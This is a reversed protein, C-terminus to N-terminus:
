LLSFIFGRSSCHSKLANINFLDKEAIVYCVMYKERELKIIEGSIEADLGEQLDHVHEGVREPINCQAVMYM